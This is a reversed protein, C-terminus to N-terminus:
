FALMEKKTHLETAAVAKAATFITSCYSKETLTLISFLPSV